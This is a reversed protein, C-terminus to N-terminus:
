EAPGIGFGCLTDFSGSRGLRPWRRTNKSCGDPRLVVSESRGGGVSMRCRLQADIKQDPKKRQTLDGYMDAKGKVNSICWTV